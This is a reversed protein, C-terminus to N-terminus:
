EKLAVLVVLAVVGIMWLASQNGAPATRAAAAADGLEDVLEATIAATQAASAAYWAQLQEATVTGASSSSTAAPMKTSSSKSSGGGTFAGVAASVLNGLSFAM